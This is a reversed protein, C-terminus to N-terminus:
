YPPPGTRLVPWKHWTSYQHKQQPSSNNNAQIAEETRPMVLLYCNSRRPRSCPHPLLLRGRTEPSSCPQLMAARQLAWWIISGADLIGAQSQLFLGQLTLVLRGDIPAAPFHLKPKPKWATKIILNLPPPPLCLPLLSVSSKLTLTVPPAQYFLLRSTPSLYCPHISTRKEEKQKCRPGSIAPVLEFTTFNCTLHYTQHM